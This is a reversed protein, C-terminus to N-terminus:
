LNLASAREAWRLRFRERLVLHAVSAYVISSFLVSWVELNPDSRLVATLHFALFVSIRSLEAYFVGKSYALARLGVTSAVALLQFASGILVPISFAFISSYQKAFLVNIAIVGALSSVLVYPLFDKAIVARSQKLFEEMASYGASTFRAVLGSISLNEIIQTPLLILQSCSMVLRFAGIEEGSFLNKAVVIIGNTAVWCCIGGLLEWSAYSAHRRFICAFAVSERRSAVPSLGIAILSGLLLGGSLICM